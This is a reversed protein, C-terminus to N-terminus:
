IHILSLWVARANEMWGASQRRACIPPAHPMYNAVTMAPIPRMQQLITSLIKTIARPSYLSLYILIVLDSILCRAWTCRLGQDM